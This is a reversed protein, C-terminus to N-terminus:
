EGSRELFKFLEQVQSRTLSVMSDVGVSDPDTDFIVRGNSGGSQVWLQAGDDDTFIKNKILKAM